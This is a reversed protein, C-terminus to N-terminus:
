AFALVDAPHATLPDVGIQDEWVRHRPRGIVDHRDFVAAAVVAFEAGCVQDVVLLAVAFGWRNDSMSPMPSVVSGNGQGKLRHTCPTAAGAASDSFMCRRAGSSAATPSSRDMANAGVMASSSPAAAHGAHPATQVNGLAQAIGGFLLGMFLLGAVTAVVGIIIHKVVYRHM